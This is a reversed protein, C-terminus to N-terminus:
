TTPSRSCSETELSGKRGFPYNRRCYELCDSYRFDEAVGWILLTCLLHLRQFICQLQQLGMRSGPQGYPLLKFILPRWSVLLCWSARAKSRTWLETAPM